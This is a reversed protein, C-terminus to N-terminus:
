SGVGESRGVFRRAPKRRKQNRPQERGLYWGMEKLREQAEAAAVFDGRHVADFLVNAEVSARVEAPIQQTGQM